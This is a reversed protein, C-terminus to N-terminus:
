RKGEDRLKRDTRLMSERAVRQADKPKTGSAILDRAVRDM